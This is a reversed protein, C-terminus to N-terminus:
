GEPAIYVRLAAEPALAHAWQVDLNAEVGVPFSDSQNPSVPIIQPTLPPLNFQRCFESLDDSSFTIGWEAIAITQGAGSPNEPVGYASRVVCPAYGSTEAYPSADAIIHPYIRGRFSLGSIAVIGPPRQPVGVAQPGHPTQTWNVQLIQAWQDQPAEAIIMLGQDQVIHTKRRQLWSLVSDHDGATNLVFGLQM